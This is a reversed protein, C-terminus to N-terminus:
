AEVERKPRNRTRIPAPEKDASATGNENEFKDEDAELLAENVALQIISCFFNFFNMDKVEVPSFDGGNLTNWTYGRDSMISSGREEFFKEDLKDSIKISSFITIALLSLPLVFAFIYSSSSIGGARTVVSVGRKSTKRLGVHLNTRTPAVGTPPPLLMVAPKYNGAPILRLLTSFSLSNHPM